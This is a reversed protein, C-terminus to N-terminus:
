CKKLPCVRSHRNSWGTGYQNDVVLHVQARTMKRYNENSRVAATDVIFVYAQKVYACLLLTFCHSLHCYPVPQDFLCLLTYGVFIVFFFLEPFLNIEYKFIRINQNCIKTLAKFIEIFQWKAKIFLNWLM